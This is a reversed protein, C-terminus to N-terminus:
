VGQDEGPDDSRALRRYQAVARGCPIRAPGVARVRQERRRERLGPERHLDGRRFQEVLQQGDVVDRMLLAAPHLDAAKPIVVWFDQGAVAARLGAAAPLVLALPDDAAVGPVPPLTEELVREGMCPVRQAPRPQGSAPCIGANPSARTRSRIFSLSPCRAFGRSRCRAAASVAPASRTTLDRDALPGGLHALGLAGPVGALVGLGAGGRSVPRVARLCPLRRVRARGTRHHRRQAPRSRDREAPSARSASRRRRRSAATGTVGAGGGRRPASSGPVCRTRAARPHRPPAALTVALGGPGRSGPRGTGAPRAAARGSGTPPSAATAPPGAAGEGRRRPQRVGLVLCEARPAPRQVVQVAGGGM